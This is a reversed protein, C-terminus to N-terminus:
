IAQAASDRSPQGLEQIVDNSLSIFIRFSEDAALKEDILQEFANTQLAKLKLAAAVRQDDTVGAGISDRRIEMVKAYFTDIRNKRRLKYMRTAAFVASVLTILLTVVVEAVGSYREYVTPADRQEYALLGPHLVFTSNGVNTKDDLNKFLGPRLAALAPKLRLVEHVLDYVVAPDLNNRAVLLMDVALTLVPKKPVDGYTAVPIVFPELHPSLLTVSDIPGGLGIDGPSGLSWFQIDSRVSEPITDLQDEAIPAFVVFVDPFDVEENDREELVTVYSFEDSSLKLRAAVSEFMLRSSSGPPGAFIGAGRILTRIDSDDRGAFYGIHLVTPYMPLVTAIRRRFPMSNSILAIDAEGAILAEVADSESMEDGSFTITVTSERDLLELFDTAIDQDPGPLPKILRLETPSRECGSLLLVVLAIWITWQAKM